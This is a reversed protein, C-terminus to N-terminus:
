NSGNQTMELYMQYADDDSLDSTATNAGATTVFDPNLGFFQAEERARRNAEDISRQANATYTNGLDVLEKLSAPTLGPGGQSLAAIKGQITTLLAQGSASRDYETERVVSDPDLIKNFTTVLAQTTANLDTADGNAYRNWTDTLISGQRQLERAASTNTQTTKKLSQTAQFTQYPNLGSAGGSNPAYTKGKSAVLKGDTDYYSQGESLTFSKDNLKAIEAETKRTKLDAEAQSADYEKKSDFYSAKIDDVTVGYQKAIENLSKKDLQSPDVGQSLLSQALTSLGKQKRETRSGLYELYKEAGQQKALRKAALEDAAGKRATGMIEAIKANRENQISSEIGRNYGLVEENQANGFDSGLTGSRASMARASGLRGQGEMQAGRLQDNYIKNTADIQAQYQRLTDRYVKRDNIPQTAQQQYYNGIEGAMTDYSADYTPASFSKYTDGVTQEKLGPINVGLAKARAQNDLIQQDPVFETQM